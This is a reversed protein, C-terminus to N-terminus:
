ALGVALGLVNIAAYGRHRRLSRLAVKLYNKLM